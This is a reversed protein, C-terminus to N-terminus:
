EVFVPVSYKLCPIYEGNKEEEFHLKSWLEITNPEQIIRMKYVPHALVLFFLEPDLLNLRDASVSGARGATCGHQYTLLSTFPFCFLDRAVNDVVSKEHVTTSDYGPRLPSLDALLRLKGPHESPRIKYWIPHTSFLYVATVTRWDNRRPKLSVHGILSM